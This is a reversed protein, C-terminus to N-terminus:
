GDKRRDEYNKRMIEYKEVREVLVSYMVPYLPNARDLQSLLRKREEIDLKMDELTRCEM